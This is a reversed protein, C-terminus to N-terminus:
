EDSNEVEGYLMYKICSITAADRTADLMDKLLKIIVEVEDEPMDFNICRQIISNSILGLSEQITGLVDELNDEELNGNEDNAEFVYKKFNEVAKEIDVM